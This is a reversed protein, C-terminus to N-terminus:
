AFIKNATRFTNAHAEVTLDIPRSYGGGLTIVLPIKSAQAPMM